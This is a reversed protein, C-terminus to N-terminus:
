TRSYRTVSYKDRYSMKRCIFGALLQDRIPQRLSDYIREKTSINRKKLNYM